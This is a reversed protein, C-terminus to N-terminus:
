GGSVIPMLIVKDNEKLKTNMGDLQNLLLGNISVMHYPKLELEQPDYVSKQFAVGYKNALISLLERISGNKRLRIIESKEIDLKKKIYGLYEVIVKLIKGGKKL